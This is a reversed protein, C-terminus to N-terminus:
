GHRADKERRMNGHASFVTTKHHGTAAPLVGQVPNRPLHSPRSHHDCRGLLHGDEVGGVCDLALYAVIGFVVWSNTNSGQSTPSLRGVMGNGVSPPM